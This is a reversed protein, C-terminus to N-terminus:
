RHTLRPIYFLACQITQKLRVAIAADGDNQRLTRAATRRRLTHALRRGDVM